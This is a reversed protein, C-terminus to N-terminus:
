GAFRNYCTSISAKSTLLDYIIQIMLVPLISRVASFAAYVLQFIVFFKHGHWLLSLDYGINSLTSFKQKEKKSQNKM